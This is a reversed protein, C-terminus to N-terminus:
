DRSEEDGSAEFPLEFGGSDPAFNKLKRETLRKKFTCARCSRMRMGCDNQKGMGM